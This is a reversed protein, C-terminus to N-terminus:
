HSDKADFHVVSITQRSKQRSNKNFRFQYLLNTAKTLWAKNAALELIENAHFHKPANPAPNGIPKLHRLTVLTQIEYVQFNLTWATQEVTFRAPPQRLLSLFQRQNDNMFYETTTM